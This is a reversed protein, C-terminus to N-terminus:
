LQNFYSISTDLYLLKSKGPVDSRTTETLLIDTNCSKGSSDTLILTNGSRQYGKNNSSTSLYTQSGTQSLNNKIKGQMIMSYRQKSNIKSVGKRKHKLVEAKRRMKYDDYTPVTPNSDSYFSINQGSERGITTIKPPTIRTKIQRIEELAESQDCM